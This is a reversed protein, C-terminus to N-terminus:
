SRTITIIAAGANSLAEFTATVLIPGQGDVTRDAGNYKIKPLEFQMTNVGDTLTFDLAATTENLFDNFVDADDFYVTFSGTITIFGVTIDRATDVGLSYNAQGGNDISLSISSLNGVAVSDVLFTGGAHFFPEGVTPPTPSADISTGSITLQKGMVGFTSTVIGDVPVEVAWTNVKVGTYLSYQDIDLSGQEVTFSKEVVGDSITDAAFVSYLASAIWDDVAGHALNVAIDGGVIRNGHINFQRRRDSRITDDQFIDKSLNIGFSTHPLELFNAAGSGTGAVASDVASFNTLTAFLDTDTIAITSSAGLTDSTTLLDGAVLAISAGTLDQNIQAILATFTQAEEGVVNILQSGGGDVVIAADYVTEDNLLGSPDGGVKTIGFSVNQVGATGAPNVGWTTEEQYSVQSRSGQASM